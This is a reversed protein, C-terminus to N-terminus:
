AYARIPAETQTEGRCARILRELAAAYLPYRFRLGVVGDGVWRVQGEFGDFGPVKLTVTEDLAFRRQDINGLRCGHLSLEILLGHAPKGETRSLQAKRCVGYRAHQRIILISV